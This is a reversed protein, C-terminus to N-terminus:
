RSRAAQRAAPAQPAQPAQAAPPLRRPQSAAPQPGFLSPRKPAPRHIAAAHEADITPSVAPGSARAFGASRAAVLQVLDEVGNAISVVNDARPVGVAYSTESGLGRRPQSRVDFRWARAGLGRLATAADATAPVARISVGVQREALTAILDAAASPAAAIVDHSLDVVLRSPDVGDSAVARDVSAVLHDADVVGSRVEIAFTALLDKARWRASQAAAAALSWADLDREWLHTGAVGADALGPRLPGYHPHTWRVSVGFSAISRDHLDLEPRFRMCLGDAMPSRRPSSQSM